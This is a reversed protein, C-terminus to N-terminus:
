LSHSTTSCQPKCKIQMIVFSTSCRKMYKSGMSDKSLHRNQNHVKIIQIIQIKIISNYEM